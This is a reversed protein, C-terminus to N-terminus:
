HGAPSIDTDSSCQAHRLFSSYKQPMHIGVWRVPDYLRSGMGEAPLTFAHWM